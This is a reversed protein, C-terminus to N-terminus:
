ESEISQFYAREAHAVFAEMADRVQAPDRESYGALLLQMGDAVALMTAPNPMTSRRVLQAHDSYRLIEQKLRPNPVTDLWISRFKINAETILPVDQKEAGRRCSRYSAAMSELQEASLILAVSAAAGPELLRRVEFIDRVDQATWEPIVFGRTTGVLYGENVLRLLAHRVPTRTCEFERAVDNDLIREGQKIEGRQLRSLIDQYVSEM